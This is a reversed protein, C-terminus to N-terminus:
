ARAEIASLRREHNHTQKSTHTVAAKITKMDQKIDVLEEKIIPRVKEELLSDINELFIDLKDEISKTIFGAVRKLDEDNYKKDSM